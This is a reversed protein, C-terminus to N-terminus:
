IDVNSAELVAGSYAQDWYHEVGAKRFHERAFSETPCQKFKVDGFNREKAEGEWVLSCKNQVETGEKDKLIDEDWKIRNLMLQKYKKQQKPGGEVVIVNVDEYLVVCGTMYLQKANTEVKFKKAPNNLNTVRYVAVHVGGSTDEKLKKAVKDKKQDATLKRKANAKEHNAVRKAMQERVHAEIKTPDQVAENGLVRMLNSIKVKPQDPQAIGLRIKDQKEKWAERRNQRRLKKQEKKTLFVPVHAATVPEMPKMQIPHEILNTIADPRIEEVHYKASHGNTLILADWWEIDPINDKTDSKPVLKALQTASTIGTKRAITSIDAQLKELQAKMRMRQGEKQYRGPENFKFAMRKPRTAIKPVLRGDFFKTEEAEGRQGSGSPEAGRLHERMEDRRKARLNAKLTPVHHSLTIQQGSADVTRGKDDLIVAAPREPLAPITASPGSALQAPAVPGIKDMKNAIRAQLAAITAATDVHQQMLPASDISVVKPPPLQVKATQNALGSSGKLGALAQKREEIQKLTNSMMARIQSASMAVIGGAEAAEAETKAKKGGSGGNSDSGNDEMSRKRSSQQQTIMPLDRALCFEDVADCIKDSLKGAQRHDLLTCLRKTLAEKDGGQQLCNISASLLTPESFGLQRKILNHISPELEGLLSAPLAMKSM